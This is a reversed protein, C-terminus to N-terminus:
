PVLPWESWRGGGRWLAKLHALVRLPSPLAEIDVRPRLRLRYDGDPDLAARDIVPFSRVTGLTM